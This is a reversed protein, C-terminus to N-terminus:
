PAEKEVPAAPRQVLEVIAGDGSRLYVAVGGSRPGVTIPEVTGAPFWGHPAAREVLAVVNEVYLALHAAGADCPRVQGSTRSEPGHYQLLEVTCAACELIVVSISAGTVGSIGASFPEDLDIRPRPVFGLVDAFFAVSAELDTVTIGHHAM